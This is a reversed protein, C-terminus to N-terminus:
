YKVQQGNSLKYSSPDSVITDKENLGTTIGVYDDGEFGTTVENKYVRDGQVVYIYNKGAEEIIADPSVSLMESSKAVEIDASGNLGKIPMIEPNDFVLDSIVATSGNPLAVVKADIRQVTGNFVHGPYSDLTIHAKMGTKINEVDAEDVEAKFLISQTNTVSFLEQGATVFSGAYIGNLALQGDAPSTIQANKYNSLASYYSSYTSSVNGQVAKEGTQLTTLSSLATQYLAEASKYAQKNVDNHDAMYTRWAEDRERKRASETAEAAKLKQSFSDSDSKAALYAAYTTDLSAKLSARDLVLVVDGKKVADGGNYKIEKVSGSVAARVTSNEPVDTGGSASITKTIARMEAKATLVATVGGKSRLYVIVGVVLLFTVLFPYIKRVKRKVM